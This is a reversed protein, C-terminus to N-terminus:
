ADVHLSKPPQGRSLGVGGGFHHLRSAFSFPCDSGISDEKMLAAMQECGVEM